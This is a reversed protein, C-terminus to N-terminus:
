TAETFQALSQYTNNEYNKERISRTLLRSLVPLVFCSIKADEFSM